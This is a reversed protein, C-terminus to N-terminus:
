RAAPAPGPGFLRAEIALLTEVFNAATPARLLADRNASDKIIRCLAGLVKLYGDDNAPPIGLAFILRVTQSAQEFVVGSDSRGIALVIRSVHPTRAHPLAIYNGLCTPNISERALMDAYFGPFDTVDPHGELLHAVEFIADASDTSQVQLTIRASALIPALPGAM